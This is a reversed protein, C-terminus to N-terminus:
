KSLHSNTISDKLLIENFSLEQGLRTGSIAPVSCWLGTERAAELLLPSFIPGQLSRTPAPSFHRASTWAARTGAWLLLLGKYFATCLSLALSM